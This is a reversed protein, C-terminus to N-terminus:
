LAGRARCLPLPFAAQVDALPRPCLLLPIGSRSSDTSLRIDPRSHEMRM